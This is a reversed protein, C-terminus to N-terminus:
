QNRLGTGPAKARSLDISSKACVVASATDDSRQIYRSINTTVLGGNGFTPDLMGATPTVRDEMQEVLLRTTRRTAGRVTRRRSQIVSSLRSAFSM